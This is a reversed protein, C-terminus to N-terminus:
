KDKPSSRFNKSWYYQAELFDDLKQKDQATLTETLKGNEKYRAKSHVVDVTKELDNSLKMFENGDYGALKFFENMLFYPGIRPGQGVLDNGLTKKASENGWIVYPTDFYNYFGEETGLDFNVGLQTYVSNNDGMWPNHDGFVIVVVPEDESRFYDIMKKLQQTTSYVGALYNNMINYEPESYGKNKVYEVDTLKETSYPGHNQYTVNFSFYPKGTKKNDEYLQVIQPFLINDRAIQGGALKSYMNEFFYYNDFGLYENVNKRNYFWDYSPHSGEVTYGQESFYRAYSNTNSRFNYLSTFGTLVSWETNVTGGAFINTVLEGSYSEKELEHLYGYVDTNFDLKGFKSFDNYAEFQISIVNVKKNEPINSYEYSYLKDKAEKESYDEPPKRVSSKISYILPYMFGKSIYVQTSSWRSILAYNETSAYVKSDMYVNNYSYIGICALLILGILRIRALRIRDKALFFAALTGLICAAIVYYIKWNLQISYRESIKAAESFLSFDTALLPDNRLLLKFYNTWSLAMTIVSTLLFSVWVRNFILYLLFMCFVVPFINLLALPQIKFYSVFMPMLYYAAGFYMSVLGLCAGMLLLVIFTYVAHLARNLRYGATSSFTRGNYVIHFESNTAKKLKSRSNDYVETKEGSSVKAYLQSIDEFVTFRKDSINYENAALSAGNKEALGKLVIAPYQSIWVIDGDKLIGNLKKGKAGWFRELRSEINKVSGLFSWHKEYYKQKSIFRFCYLFSYLFNSLIYLFLSPQRSACYRFFKKELADTYETHEFVFIKKM